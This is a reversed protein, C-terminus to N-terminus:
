ARFALLIRTYTVIWRVSEEPPSIRNAHVQTIERNTDRDSEAFTLTTEKVTVNLDCFYTNTTPFKLLIIIMSIINCSPPGRGPGSVPSKDLVWFHITPPSVHTSLVLSKIQFPAGLPSCYPLPVCSFRDAAHSATEPQITIPNTEPHDKALWESESDKRTACAHSLWSAHQRSPNQSTSPCVTDGKSRERVRGTPPPNNTGYEKDPDGAM